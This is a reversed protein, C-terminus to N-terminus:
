CLFTAIRFVRVLALVCEIEPLVSAPIHRVTKRESTVALPRNVVEIRVEWGSGTPQSGDVVSNANMFFIAPNKELVGVESVIRDNDRSGSLQDHLLDECSRVIFVSNLYM